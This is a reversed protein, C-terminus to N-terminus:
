DIQDKDRKQVPVLLDLLDEKYIKLYSINIAFDLKEEKKRQKSTQDDKLFSLKLKPHLMTAICNEESDLTTKFSNQIGILMATTLPRMSVVVNTIKLKRKLGNYDHHFPWHLV